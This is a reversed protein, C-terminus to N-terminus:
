NRQLRGVCESCAGCRTEATHPWQHGLDRVRNHAHSCARLAVLFFDVVVRGVPVEPVREAFALAPFMRSVGAAFLAETVEAVPLFGVAVLGADDETELLLGDAAGDFSLALPDGTFVLALSGFAM